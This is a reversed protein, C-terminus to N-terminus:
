WPAGPLTEYLEILLGDPAEVMAYRFAPYEKIEDRFEYGESKMHAVLDPLDDTRIGLHHVLPREASQPAQDYLHVAGDGVEIRVNRAGALDGEDMTVRGGFMRTFFAVTADIDSCFLHTHDIRADPVSPNDRM